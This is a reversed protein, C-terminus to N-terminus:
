KLSYCDKNILLDSSVTYMVSVETFPAYEDNQKNGIKTSIDIIELADKSYDIGIISELDQNAVSQVLYSSSSEDISNISSDHIGQKNSSENLFIIIIIIVLLFALIIIICQKRWKKNKM